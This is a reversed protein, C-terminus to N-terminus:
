LKELVEYCGGVLYFENLWWNVMLELEMGDYSDSLDFYLPTVDLNLILISFYLLYYTTLSSVCVSAALIDATVYSIELLESGFKLSFSILTSWFYFLM